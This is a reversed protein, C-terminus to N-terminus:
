SQQHRSGLGADMDVDFPRPHVKACSGGQDMSIFWQPTAPVSIVPTKHRWCASLSHHDARRQAPGLAGRLVM